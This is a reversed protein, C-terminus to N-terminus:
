VYGRVDFSVVVRRLAKTCAALVFTTVKMLLPSCKKEGFNRGDGGSTVIPTLTSGRKSLDVLEISLNDVVTSLDVLRCTSLDVLRCHISLDVITSLHTSLLNLTVM